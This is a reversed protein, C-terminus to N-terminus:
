IAPKFICFLITLVGTTVALSAKWLAKVTIINENLNTKEFQLDMSFHPWNLLLMEFNKTLQIKNCQPKWINNTALPSNFSENIM